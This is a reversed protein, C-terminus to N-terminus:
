VYVTIDRGLSIMRNSGAPTLGWQAPMCYGTYFCDQHWSGSYASSATKEGAAALVM